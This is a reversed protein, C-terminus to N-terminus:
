PKRLMSLAALLWGAMMTFGGAPALYTVKYATMVHQYISGSFMVTGLIILWAAWFLSRSDTMNLLAAVGILAAANFLHIDSGTEWVDQMGRMDIAHSGVAGLIVASLCLVAAIGAILRAQATV